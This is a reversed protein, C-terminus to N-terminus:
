ASALKAAASVNSSSVGPWADVTIGVLVSLASVWVAAVALTVLTLMDALELRKTMSVATVPDVTASVPEVAAVGPVTVTTGTTLMPESPGIVIVATGFAARITSGFAVVVECELLTAVTEFFM